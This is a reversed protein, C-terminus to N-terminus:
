IKGRGPGGGAGAGVRFFSVNCAKAASMTATNAFYWPDDGAPVFRETPDVCLHFDKVNKRNSKTTTKTDKGEWTAAQVSVALVALSLLAAKYRFM